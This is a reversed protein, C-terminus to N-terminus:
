GRSEIAASRDGGFNNAIVAVWFYHRPQPVSILSGTVGFNGADGHPLPPIPRRLRCRAVTWVYVRTCVRHSLPRASVYLCNVYYEGYRLTGLPINIAPQSGARPKARTTRVSGDAGWARHRRRVEM